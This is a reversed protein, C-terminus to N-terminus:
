GAIRRAVTGDDNIEVINQLTKRGTLEFTKGRKRYKLLGDDTLRWLSLTVVSPCVLPDGHTMMYELVEKSSVKGGLLQVVKLTADKAM